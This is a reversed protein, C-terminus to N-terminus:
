GWLEEKDKLDWLSTFKDVRAKAINFYEQNLEIGIYKRSLMKSALCTTGSGVFPDLIVDGQRSGLTILYSMLDLPKVTPHRNCKPESTKNGVSKRYDNECWKNQETVFGKELNECNENRESKSAKPVILFPFTRQVEIPLKSITKEFWSDLDFFRSFSGEDGYSIQGDPCNEKFEGIISNTKPVHYEITENDVTGSKRTIGDNLIDDSVLLNAPFRGSSNVQFETAKAKLKYNASNEDSTCKHSLGNNKRKLPNSAVDGREEFPIRVNDLWTVGKGNKLAQDVFTKESLPKMAVIIVEVAPKPQFGGYSGSYDKAKQSYPMDSLQNGTFMGVTNGSGGHLGGTPEIYGREKEYRHIFNDWESGLEMVEKIKTWKEETPFASTWYDKGDTKYYSTATFGCEDNIQSQTKTSKDIQERYWAKFKRLEDPHNEGRKDIMKSINTAKPFGSAYVWFIPSFGTNFGAIHLRHIMQSLVDARPSSMVFAFAGSKLIRFCEKWVEVSPVARDWDKGMFSYGYPPDTVICDITEGQFSKMVEICDGLLLQSDMIGM